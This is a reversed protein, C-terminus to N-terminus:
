VIQDRRNKEPRGTSFCPRWPIGHNKVPDVPDRSFDVPDRGFDRSGTAFRDRHATMHVGENSVTGRLTGHFWFPWVTASHLRRAGSPWGPPRAMSSAGLGVRDPRVLLLMRNRRGSVEPSRGARKPCLLPRQLPGTLHRPAAIVQGGVGSTSRRWAPRTRTWTTTARGGVRSVAPDAGAARFATRSLGRRPALLLPRLLQLARPARSLPLGLPPLPLPLPVALMRTRMTM